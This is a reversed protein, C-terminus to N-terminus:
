NIPEEPEPEADADPEAGSADGAAGEVEEGEDDDQALKAAAVVRDDGELDMVKVGQAARGTLRITDVPTRIIKGSQTILIVEDELTVQKIAVVEGTKTGVKFNIVGQIARNKIPYDRLLTRKGYGRETLTLIAGEETAVAEM